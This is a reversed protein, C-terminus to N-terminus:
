KLVVDLPNHPKAPATPLAAPPQPQPQPQPQPLAVPLTRAPRAAGPLAAGPPPTASAANPKALKPPVTARRTVEALGVPPRQAGAGTPLASTSSDTATATAAGSPLPTADLTIEPAPSSSPARAPALSATSPALSAAAPALSAAAPLLLTASASTAGANPKDTRRLLFASFGAVVISCFAITIAPTARRRQKSSTAAPSWAANTAEGPRAELPAAGAASELAQGAGSAGHLVRSIRGESLRARESGLGVLAKALEALNGYRQAPDKQLCREVAAALAPPVWPCRERLSPPPETLVLACLEPMTTAEFPVRGSILEYLIVGLAWIDARADVTRTSRMQEPAMYMPSGMVASTKTLSLDPVSGAAGSVAKSIGFDLVKIFNSGDARRTLFLNAPKLDRHVIGLKHAEAVAECAQLVYDVAEAIPLAGHTAIRQALDSGELYEMVIYPSGTPLSGVDIVRAVHESEIRVASRAERAFRAVVEPNELGASLLFKIAVRRELLLDHAAVVVGMGGVGLVREVRYKGALVEGTSVPAEMPILSYDVL